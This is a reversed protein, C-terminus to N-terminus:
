VHFGIQRKSPAPVSLPPELLEMMRKLVDVIAIEHIDLRGTLKKELAKLEGMLGKHASLVVRMKMFARVVFISMKVARRSKLINAVMIAGHETFARPLKRPDRHRQSGTVFQSLNTSKWEIRTVRFMFDLPFRFANRKVAQNLVSTSVGYIRALDVDLIVKQGRIFYILPEIQLNRKLM